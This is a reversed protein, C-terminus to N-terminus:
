LAVHIRYIHKSKVLIPKALLIRTGVLLEHFLDAFQSPLQLRSRNSVLSMIELVTADFPITSSPGRPENPIYSWANPFSRGTGIGLMKLVIYLADTGNGVGICHKVGCERAFAEEFERVYKGKIFATEQIVSAIAEDIEPKITRYQALLDTYPVRM